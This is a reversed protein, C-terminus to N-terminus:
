KKFRKKRLFGEKSKFKFNVKNKFDYDRKELIITKQKSSTSAFYLKSLESKNTFLNKEIGLFYNIINLNGYFSTNLDEIIYIGGPNLNKFLKKFSKLQHAPYHSGDDIILDFTINRLKEYTKNNNQSGKIIKIYSTSFHSKDIIDLGYITKNKFFKKLSRLGGGGTFDDHGGIGIELVNGSKKKKIKKFLPEYLEALGSQYRNSFFARSISKFDKKLLLINLFYLLNLVIEGLLYFHKFRLNCGYRNLKFSIKDYFNSSKKNKM